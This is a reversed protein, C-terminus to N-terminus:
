GQQSIAGRRCRSGSSDEAPDLGVYATVKRANAFREVRELTAALGLGTLLGIGPHTRLRQVREDSEARATLWREVTEIKQELEKLLQCLEDRQQSLPTPLALAQMRPQNDKDTEEVENQHFIRAFVPNDSDEAM